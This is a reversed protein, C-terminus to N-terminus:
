EETLNTKNNIKNKIKDLKIKVAISCGLNLFPIMHFINRGLQDTSLFLRSSQKLSISPFIISLMVHKNKHLFIDVGFRQNLSISFDAYATIETETFNLEEEYNFHEFVYSKNFIYTPLDLTIGVPSCTFFVYNKGISFYIFNDYSINLGQRHVKIRQYPSYKYFTESLGSYGASFSQQMNFFRNFKIQHTLGHNINFEDLASWLNITGSFIPGLFHEASNLNDICCALLFFLIFLFYKTKM